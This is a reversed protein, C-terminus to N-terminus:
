MVQLSIVGSSKLGLADTVVVTVFYTGKVTKTWKLLGTPSVTMGVPIPTPNVSYLVYSLTGGNTTSAPIQMAFVQSPKVALTLEYVVPPTPTMVAILFSHSGVLGSPDKAEITVTWNGYAAKPWSVLGAANITMGSPGNVLRLTPILGDANKVTAQLSFPLGGPVEIVDVPIEVVPTSPATTVTFTATSTSSAGYTDTAIVKVTYVGKVTPSFKLEGATTLTLGAPAATALKFVLADGDPDSSMPTTSVNQATTLSIAVNQVLPAKNAAGIVFKYVGSASLGTTSKVTV